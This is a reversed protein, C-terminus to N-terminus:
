RGMSSGMMDRLRARLALVLEDLTAPFRQTGALDPLRERYIGLGPVSVTCDTKEVRCEIRGLVVREQVVRLYATRGRCDHLQCAGPEPRRLEGVIVGRYAVDRRRLVAAVAEAHTRPRAPVVLLAGILGVLVLAVLAVLRWGWGGAVASRVGM